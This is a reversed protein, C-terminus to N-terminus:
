KSNGHFEGSNYMIKDTKAAHNLQESSASSISKVVATGHKHYKAYQKIYATNIRDNPNFTNWKTACVTLVMDAQKRFKKVTGYALGVLCAIFFLSHAMNIKRDHKKRWDRGLKQHQMQMEYASEGDANWQATATMKGSKLAKEHQVVENYFKTVSEDRKKKTGKLQFMATPISVATFTGAGAAILGFLGGKFFHAAKKFFGSKKKVQHMYELIYTEKNINLDANLIKEAITECSDKKLTPIMHFLGGGKQSRKRLSRKKKSGGRRKRQSRKRQSRKRQSRKRQSRKRQVM